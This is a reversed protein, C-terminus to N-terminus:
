HDSKIREVIQMEATRMDSVSMKLKEAAKDETLKDVFRAEILKREKPTLTSVRKATEEESLFVIHSLLTYSKKKM